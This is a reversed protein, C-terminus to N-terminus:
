QTTHFLLFHQPLSSTTAGSTMQTMKAPSHRQEKTRKRKEKKEGKRARRQGRGLLFLISDILKDGGRREGVGGEEFGEGCGGAIGKRGEEGLKFPESVGMGGRRVGGIRREAPTEGVRKNSVFVQFISM